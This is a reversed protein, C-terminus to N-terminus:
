YIRGDDSKFNAGSWRKARPQVRAWARAQQAVDRPLQHFTGHEVRVHWTDSANHYWVDRSTRGWLGLGRAAVFKCVYCECDSVHQFLTSPRSRCVLAIERRKQETFEGTARDFTRGYVALHEAIVRYTVRGVRFPPIQALAAVMDRTRGEETADHAVSSTDVAHSDTPFESPTARDIQERVVRRAKAKQSRDYASPSQTRTM